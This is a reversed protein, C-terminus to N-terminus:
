TPIDFMRGMIEVMRVAAAAVGLNGIQGVVTEGATFLVPTSLVSEVRGIVPAVALPTTARVSYGYIQWQGGIAAYSNSFGHVAVAGYDGIEDRQLMAAAPGPTAFARGENSPTIRLRLNATVAPAFAVVSRVGKSSTYAIQTPAAALAVGTNEYVMECSTPAVDGIFANGWTTGPHQVSGRMVGTVDSDPMTDTYVGAIADDMWYWPGTGGAGSLTRYIRYAVAGTGLAPVTLNIGQGATPTTTASVTSLPGEQGLANIQSLKHSYSGTGLGSADMAVAAVTPAGGAAPAAQACNGALRYRKAIRMVTEDVAIHTIACRDVILFKGAPVQMGAVDYYPVTASIVPPTVSPGWAGMYFEEGGPMHDFAQLLVNADIGPTELGLYELVGSGAASDTVGTKKAM